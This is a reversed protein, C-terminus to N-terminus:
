WSCFLLQQQKSDSNMTGITLITIGVMGVKHIHIIGITTDIIGLGGHIVGDMGLITGHGIQGSSIVIFIFMLGITLDGSVMSDQITTIGLFPQNMAYQAFDWRFNFDTRLKRKLQFLNNITDIKTSEPVELYIPYMDDSEYIGDSGLTEGVISGCSTVLLSNIYNITTEYM